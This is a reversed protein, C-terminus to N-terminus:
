DQRLFESLLRLYTRRRGRELRLIESESWHYYFALSNVEHLLEDGNLAIEDFFFATTDFPALFSWSCEPCTLDLDLDLQPALGEMATNLTDREEASLPRGGDDLVCRRALEVVGEEVSMGLVAEQDGGTPLRFSASRDSLPLAYSGTSQRRVEIPVDSVPFSVDMKNDCAPCVMVAQINEGLTLRRLQLILYDRDGVLLQRILDATVPRDDLSLVCSALVHTVRQASPVNSHLALWEEERGSLPRITAQVAMQGQPLVVGGPLRCVHAEIDGTTM